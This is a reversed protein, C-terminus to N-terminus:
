GIFVDAEIQLIPYGLNVEALVCAVTDNVDEYSRHGIICLVGTLSGVAFKISEDTSNDFNAFVISGSTFANNHEESCQVSWLEKFQFLSM